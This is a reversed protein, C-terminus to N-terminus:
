LALNKKIEDSINRESGGPEYSYNSGEFSGALSRQKNRMLVGFCQLCILQNHNIHHSSSYVPKINQDTKVM